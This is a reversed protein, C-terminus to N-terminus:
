PGNDDPGEEDLYRLDVLTTAWAGAATSAALLETRDSGHESVLEVLRAASSHACGRVLEYAVEMSATVSVRVDGFPEDAAIAQLLKSHEVIDESAGRLPERALTGCREHEERMSGSRSEISTLLEDKLGPLQCPDLDLRVSRPVLGIVSMPAAAIRTQRAGTGRTLDPMGTLARGETM